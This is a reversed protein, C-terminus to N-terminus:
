ELLVLLAGVFFWLGSALVFLLGWLSIFGCCQVASSWVWGLSKVMQPMRLFLSVWGVPVDVVVCVLFLSGGCGATLGGPPSFLILAFQRFYCCCSQEGM